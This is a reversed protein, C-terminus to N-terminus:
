ASPEQRSVDPQETPETAHTAAALATAVRRRLHEGASERPMESRLTRLFARQFHLYTRCRACHSIHARIWRREWWPSEDDLYTWALTELEVCVEADASDAHVDLQRREIMERRDHPM